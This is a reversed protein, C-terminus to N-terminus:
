EYNGMRGKDKNSAYKRPKKEEPQYHLAVFEAMWPALEPPLPVGDVNEGSDLWRSGEHYSVSLFKPRAVGEEMRWLVFVKPAPSTINYHYGEAEDRHLCIVHGPYLTQTLDSTQVIIRASAGKADTDRVIGCTEWRETAWRNEIAMRAMIVAAPWEWTKPVPELMPPNDAM